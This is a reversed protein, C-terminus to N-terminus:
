SSPPQLTRLRIWDSSPFLRQDFQWRRNRNWFLSQPFRTQRQRRFPLHADLFLLLVHFNYAQYLGVVQDRLKKAYTSQSLAKWVKSCVEAFAGACSLACILLLVSICALLSIFNINIYDNNQFLVMRCLKLMHEPENGTRKSGTRRVTQLLSYRGNLFATIFWAKVESIWQEKHDKLDLVVDGARFLSSILMQTGTRQHLYRDVSAMTTFFPYVFGLGLILEKDTTLNPYVLAILKGIADEPSAWNTCFSTRSNWCLRYQEVCGLATAEYDPIYVEMGDYKKHAAYFPDEIPVSTEYLSRGAQLMTIFVAGDDRQLSPHITESEKGQVGIPFINLDYAPQQRSYSAMYNGSYESSYRNPGNLTALLTGYIGIRTDNFSPDHFKRGFWVGMKNLWPEPDNNRTRGVLLFQDIKLPACVVGHDVLVQSGLNVGYDRPSLGVYELRVPQVRDQCVDGPFPCEEERSLHLQPTSGVIGSEQSCSSFM